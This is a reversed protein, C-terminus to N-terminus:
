SVGHRDSLVQMIRDRPSHPYVSIVLPEEGPLLIFTMKEGIDMYAAKLGGMNLHTGIKSLRGILGKLSPDFYIDEVGDRGGIAKRLTERVRDVSSPGEEEGEGSTAAPAEEGEESDASPESGRVGEDKLRTADMIIAQLDRHIQKEKQPCDNQISITVDDWTLIEYVAKAGKLGDVRADLGFTDAAYGILEVAFAPTM